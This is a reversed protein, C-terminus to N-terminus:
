ERAGNDMKEGREWAGWYGNRFMWESNIVRSDIANESRAARRGNLAGGNLLTSDM